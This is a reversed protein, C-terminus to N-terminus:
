RTNNKKFKICYHHYTITISRRLYYLLSVIDILFKRVEKEVSHFKGDGIAKPDDLGMIAKLIDPEIATKVWDKPSDLGGLWSFKAKSIEQYPHKGMLRAKLWAITEHRYFHNAVGKLISAPDTRWLAMMYGDTATLGETVSEGTLGQALWKQCV